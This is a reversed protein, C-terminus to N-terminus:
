GGAEDEYYSILGKELNRVVESPENLKEVTEPLQAM